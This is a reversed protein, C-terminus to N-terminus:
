FERWEDHEIPELKRATADSARRFAPGTTRGQTRRPHVPEPGAAPRGAGIEFRGILRTLQQSEAALAFSAATSEEVVSANQQTIRDMQDVASNVEDLGSAQERASAAIGSMLNHIEAVNQQIRDLAKGTHDVLEVGKDVQGTSTSILAKIEKAAVASRQALARVETAVVAFGRGAEGARAAEVGANLALLNTQFAIEDIVGIIQSVQRASRQIEGMAEVTDRVVQSSRSADASASAAVDNVEAAGDATRRVASTIQDLAAATEELSAAQQETRQSLDTASRSIEDAGASIGLATGSITGLADQLRDMAENFDARLQEYTTPFPASLRYVLDGQALQSLGGALANVVVAQDAAIAAKTEDHQRRQEESRRNQEAAEAEAAHKDELMRRFALFSRALDGVEDKRGEYAVTAEIDGQALRNMADTISTLPRSIQRRVLMVAIASVVLLGVLSWLLTERMTVAAQARAQIAIVDQKHRQDTGLDLSTQYARQFARGAEGKALALAQDAKGQDRLASVRDYIRRYAAAASEVPTFKAMEAPPLARRLIDLNHEVDAMSATARKVAAARDDGATVTSLLAFYQTERLAAAVQNAPRAQGVMSRTYDSLHLVNYAGTATVTVVLAVFMSIIMGVKGAIRTGKLGTM